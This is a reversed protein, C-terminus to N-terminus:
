LSIRGSLIIGNFINSRLNKHIKNFSEYFNIRIERKLIKEFKELNFSKEKCGVISLDIDSDITDEGYSYSGFLIIVSGPFNDELFKVIGSEYIMKLNETRKFDIAKQSDRNFKVLILNMNEDRNIRILESKELEKLAKSVATPSVKLKKAITRQNFSTGTNISLFRLIENQLRTWKLKYIDM